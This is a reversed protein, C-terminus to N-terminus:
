KYAEERVKLCVNLVNVAELLTCGPTDKGALRALLAVMEDKYDQDYSGRGDFYTGEADGTLGMRRNPLDVYIAGKTGTITYGRDEPETLYDLHITTMCGNEHRLLIDTMDDRGDTLRTSSAKVEAPGLLHLALDIEHSWNFIVGDRLYAPKANYQGCRFHAWLPQGICGAAMFNATRKVCEHFRMNYGVMVVNKVTNDDTIIQDAIPKEVFMPRSKLKDMHEMHLATPSSIIVARCTLLEEINTSGEVAEDHFIVECGLEELNAKHRKGISGLGVIGIKM